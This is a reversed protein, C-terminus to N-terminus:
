RPKAIAYYGERSRVYLRPLGRPPNVKVKIRRWRGDPVFDKPRYGISYQHRLELAIREFIENMEATTRPFFARGGSISALEDLIAQGQMGLPSNADSDGMIGIAYIIVDSEKLLRQLESRTYRSNNDQGDSILLIARKPYTSHSLKEVGLYCADYLATNGRTQVFTLKDLIARSDRTRDMLLQAQSNFGILFYEDREHSTEIFRSLAERARHIKEGSMSGSVDFIIGISAPADSDSFFLIEQPEKEDFVTFHRKDLGTVYRGYTDTVTVTLTVLDTNIIIPQDDNFPLKQPLPLEGDLKQQANTAQICVFLCFALAILAREKRRRQM